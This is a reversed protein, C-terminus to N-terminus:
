PLEPELIMPYDDSLFARALFKVVYDQQTATWGTPVIRPDIFQDRAGDYRIGGRAYHIVVRELTAFNGAHNYPATRSIERLTPTKFARITLPTDAVGQAAARGNDTARFKGAVEMGNNHFLNDTFLPPVHCAMCNAAQFLQFGVEEDATLANLDGDLRRDIPADFSTVTSEFAAIARALRPGTIASGTAPDIGYVDAFLSVYGPILRLKRLVDAESQRGMEIPNSLPLLAQTEFGVSRGDWFVLPIYATNIITPSHRTGVSGNIGVALERGDGWGHRPHHCTACAITNDASLRPEFFLKHGLAVERATTPIGFPGAYPPPEAGRSSKVAAGYLVAVAMMAVAVLRSMRHSWVIGAVSSVFHLMFHLALMAASVFLVAIM